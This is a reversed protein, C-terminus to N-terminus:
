SHVEIWSITEITEFRKEGPIELDSATSLCHCHPLYHSANLGPRQRILHSAPMKILLARLIQNLFCSPGCSVFCCIPVQM